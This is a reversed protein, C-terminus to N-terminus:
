KKLFDVLKLCFSDLSQLESESPILRARYIEEFVKLKLGTLREAVLKPGEGSWGYSGFVAARKGSSNVTAFLNVIDWIPKLADGNFTATGILIAKSAEIQSRMAEHDAYVADVLSVAFGNNKLYAGIKEALLRTNDYNSAFIITALNSGESKDASWEGYKGIYKEVNERILPGHSPAIIKINLGDLKALNKRIYSSFPRMIADWYYHFAEDFNLDTQDSYLFDGSLHAAFGDCSFLICDEALYEMMTDPWHMYPTAKFTLIKGGLDLTENDRVGKIPFEMNIVNKVFPVASASCILEINPNRKIIEAVAGSHDPETHNIILYDIKDPSHVEGINRIFEDIFGKKATDIVATKRGKILYANYTTGHDIDMIIDFKKLGRDQVGIWYVNETIKIASM